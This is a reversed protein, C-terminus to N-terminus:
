VFAEVFAEVFARISHCSHPGQDSRNSWLLRSKVEETHISREAQFSLIQITSVTINYTIGPYSSPQDIEDCVIVRTQDIEDCVIVRTEFM